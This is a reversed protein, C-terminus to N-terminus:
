RGALRQVRANVQAASANAHVPTALLRAAERAARGLLEQVTRMVFAPRLDADRALKIWADDDVEDLERAGGISM